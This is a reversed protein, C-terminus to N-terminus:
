EYHEELVDTIMDKLKTILRRELQTREMELEQSYLEEQKYPVEFKSVSGYRYKHHFFSRDVGDVKVSYPILRQGNELEIYKIYQVPNGDEDYGRGHEIAKIRNGIIM